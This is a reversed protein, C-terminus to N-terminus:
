NQNYEVLMILLTLIYHLIYYKNILPVNHLLSHGYMCKLIKLVCVTLFVLEIFAQCVRAIAM